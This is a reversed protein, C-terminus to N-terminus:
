LKIPLIRRFKNLLGTMWKQYGSTETAEPITLVLKARM